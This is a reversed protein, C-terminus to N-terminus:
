YLLFEQVLLVLHTSDLGWASPGMLDVLLYLLMPLAFIMLHFHARTFPAWTFALPAILCCNLHAHLFGRREWRWHWEQQLLWRWFSATCGEYPGGEAWKCRCTCACKIIYRQCKNKIILAVSQDEAQNKKWRVTVAYLRWTLGYNGLRTKENATCKVHVGVFSVKRIIISICEIEKIKSEVCFASIHTIKNMPM